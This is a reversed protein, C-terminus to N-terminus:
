SINGCYEDWAKNLIQMQIKANDADQCVDPHWQKALGLYASKAEAKTARKSVGLVDWWPNDWNALFDPEKAHKDGFELRMQIRVAFEHPLHAALYQQYQARTAQGARKGCCAWLHWDNPPLYGYQAKFETVAVDPHLGQQYCQRKRHRLFQIRECGVPDFWEKLTYLSPDFIEQQDGDRDDGFHYGCQCVRMFISQETGCDPCTKIMSDPDLEIKKRKPESIDYDQYGMPDGHLDLNGGFDLIVYYDKAPISGDGHWPRAGRWAAQFFASKSKTARAFVVCGVPPCDYGKTQTNVSCVVKLSGDRLGQDQAIRKAEAITGSQWDAVIGRRNFEASQAKAQAVSACFVLTPKGEGLRLWEDVVLALAEPRMAQKGLQGDSYDGSDNDGVQTLDFVGNRSYNRSPASWGQAVAEPPQLSEVKAEFWRGLWEDRNMRWPSATLGLHLCKDNHSYLECLEQYIAQGVGDHAEDLVFMGVDGLIERLDIGSDAWSRLTQLSAVFCKHDWDIKRQAQIISCDVGLRQLTNNAQQLLCNREVLFISKAPRKAKISRDRMIWAALVTKGQGGGAVLLVSKAGARYHGYVETKLKEQYPRLTERRPPSKIPTLTPLLLPSQM